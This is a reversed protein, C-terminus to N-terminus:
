RKGKQQSAFVFPGVGEEIDGLKWANRLLSGGDFGSKASYGSAALGEHHCGAGADQAAIGTPDPARVDIRLIVGEFRVFQQFAADIQLLLHSMGRRLADSRDNNSRRLNISMTSAYGKRLDDGPGAFEAEHRIYSLSEVDPGVYMDVTQDIEIDPRQFPPFGSCEIVGHAAFMALPMKRFRDAGHQTTRGSAYLHGVNVSGVACQGAAGAPRPRSSLYSSCVDSSWYRIRM